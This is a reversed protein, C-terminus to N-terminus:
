SIKIKIVSPDEDFYFNDNSAEELDEIFENYLEMNPAPWSRRKFEIRSNEPMFKGSLFIATWHYQRNIEVISICVPSARRGKDADNLDQENGLVLNVLDKQERVQIPLGFAAKRDLDSQTFPYSRLREEKKRTNGDRIKMMRFAADNMAEEWSNFGERVIYAKTDKGFHSWELAESSDRSVSLDINSQLLSSNLFELENMTESSVKLDYSEITFAGGGRRARTGFGGFLSILWFLKSGTVITNSNRSSVEVQFLTGPSFGERDTTETHAFFPYQFYKVGPSLREENRKYNFLNPNEGENSLYATLNLESRNKTGGFLKTENEKLEELGLHGHLARWWFRMAGKISPARLEPTRGDAGALFLPTIVRCHFTISEM